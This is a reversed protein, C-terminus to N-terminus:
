RCTKSGGRGKCKGSCCEAGTSCSDGNPKCNCAPDGSCFSDDCDILGNCDEDIGGTCLEADDVACDLACNGCSEGTDCDTDGCCFSGPTQPVDTCSFGSNTCRSDACSVPHAGDGDGCCFRNAPRGNQKGNCDAPCSVCDEGNGAECLGNGCIAGSSDGSVCDTPCSVCDEGLECAGNDNCAPCEFCGSTDFGSCDSLCALTGDGTCGESGCTSGGLDTGDCVEGGEIIDNGCTGACGAFSFSGIRTSWQSATNYEGTFWFTCGDIPDVSMSSYDGYRNSSSSATGAILSNEGHPLTGAADNALRGAYRLGPFTSSSSVNYGVAINGAADMAASGMWRSDGDPAYTGEQFLTWSGGSKRLEYWRVGGHDTGDVDTVLNGVLVEHSGINRYQNRWMVVERLPDLRTSTGPQRFCTYSTLGCLSSDIETIPISSPGTLTSNAPTAWDVDFEWIELFDQGPDNARSNHVEDDRHRMFYNPSGAPPATSGDLDSPTLMQFGFGALAPVTFRQMGAVAGALMPSRELAYAATSSENTGVYYADPWVAYKPYDPFSPAQFDYNFWGGGVPDGTQSVYVCLRYGNSSFESLLWRGALEDYLVVPDGLGGACFGAGLSDLYTPGAVTAGTDKDYVTFTTGGPANIAQIYYTAGTDGVTDPPVVGSFGQGAFNLDPTAFARQSSDRAAAEQHALLPDRGVLPPNAPTLHEPVDRFHRRPIEKIADGPRWAPARSLDRLDGDFIFPTVLDILEAGRYVRTRSDAQAFAPGALASVLVAAALLHICRSHLSDLLRRM